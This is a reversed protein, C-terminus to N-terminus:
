LWSDNLQFRTEIQESESTGSNSLVAIIRYIGRGTLAATEATTLFGTWQNNSDIPIVRSIETTDHPFQKVNITCTWSAPNNNEDYIRTQLDNIDFQFDITEGANIVPIANGIRSGPPRIRGTNDSNYYGQDWRSM